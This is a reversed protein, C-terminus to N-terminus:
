QLKNRSRMFIETTVFIECGTDKSFHKTHLLQILDTDSFTENSYFFNDNRRSEICPLIWVKQVKLFVYYLSRHVRSKAQCYRAIASKVITTWIYRNCTIVMQVRVTIFNLRQCYQSIHVYASLISLLTITFFHTLHTYSVTRHKRM